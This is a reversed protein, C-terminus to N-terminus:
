LNLIFTDQKKYFVYLGILIVVACEALAVIFSLPGPVIGNLALDRFMEVMNTLPNLM